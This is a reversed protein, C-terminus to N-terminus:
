LRDATEEVGPTAPYADLAEGTQPHRLGPAAVAALPARVFGRALLGPHPVALGPEAVVADGWLLLDLDITRPAKDKGPPRVRGLAAEIELCRGLLARPALTTEVRVAANLYAPQPEAAVAATVFVPSTATVRVDPSAALARAAARLVALRDGLNSGLAIYATPM